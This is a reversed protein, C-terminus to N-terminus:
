TFVLDDLNVPELRINEWLLVKNRRCLIARVPGDDSLVFGLSGPNAACYRFM